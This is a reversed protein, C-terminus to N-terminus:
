NKKKMFFVAYSNSVHSSNLRTSKRDPWVAVPDASFDDREGSFLISKKVVPFHLFSSREEGSFGLKATLDSSRRTPFSHDALHSVYTYVFILLSISHHYELFCLICMLDY